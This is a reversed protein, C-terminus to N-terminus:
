LLSTARRHIGVSRKMKRKEERKLTKCAFTVFIYSIYVFIAFIEFKLIKEQSNVALSTRSVHASHQM